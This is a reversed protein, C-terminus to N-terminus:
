TFFFSLVCFIEFRFSAFSSCNTILLLLLVFSSFDAELFLHFNHKVIFISFGTFSLRACIFMWNNVINTKMRQNKNACKLSCLMQINNIKKLFYKHKSQWKNGYKRRLSKRRNKYKWENRRENIWAGNKIQKSEPLTGSVAGFLYYDCNVSVQSFLRMISVVTKM